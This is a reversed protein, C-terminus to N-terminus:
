LAYERQIEGLGALLEDSCSPIFRPTLIPSTRTYRGSVETLWTRTDRLSTDADTERLPDPAHRDMNVKGVMTVLGSEELLDMLLVTAPVHRTAFILSRTNPGRRLDAVFDQYAPLAYGLDAYHAEEPFTYTNLWDILELDMGLARYSFQPAHTHLDVLGPLILNDGCDILPLDRYQEPLSQFTGASKGNLCVLYADPHTQLERLATSYCLNGQLVFNQM